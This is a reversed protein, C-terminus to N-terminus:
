RSVLGATMLGDDWGFLNDKHRMVIRLSVALTSLLTLTIALGLTGSALGTLTVYFVDSGAAMIDDDDDDAYCGACARDVPCACFHRHTLSVPGLDPSPAM